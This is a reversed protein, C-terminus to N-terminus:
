TRWLEETQAALERVRWGQGEQVRKMRPGKQRATHEGGVM